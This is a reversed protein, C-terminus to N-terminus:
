KIDGNDRYRKEQKVFQKSNDVFRDRAKKYEGAPDTEYAKIAERAVQAGLSDGETNLGKLVKTMAKGLEEDTPKDSLKEGMEKLGSITTHDFAREFYDGLAKQDTIDVGASKLTPILKSEGAAKDLEHAQYLIQVDESNSSASADGKPQQEVARGPDKDDISPSGFKQDVTKQAVETGVAKAETVEHGKPPASEMKISASAGAELPPNELRSVM